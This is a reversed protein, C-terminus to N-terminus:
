TPVVNFLLTASMAADLTTAARRVKSGRDTVTGGGGWGWPLRKKGYVAADTILAFLTHPTHSLLGALGTKVSSSDRPQPPSPWWRDASDPPPPPPANLLRRWQQRRRSKILIGSAGEARGTTAASRGSAAAATAGRKEGV